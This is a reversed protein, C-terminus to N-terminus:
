KCVTYTERTPVMVKGALIMEDRVEYHCETNPGYGGPWEHAQVNHQQVKAWAFAVLGAIVVLTLVTTLVGRVVEGDDWSDLTVVGLACVAVFAVIWFITWGFVGMM